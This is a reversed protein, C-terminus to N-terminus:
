NMKQFVFLHEHMILLFNSEKSKNIIFSNYYDYAMRAIVYADAINDNRIEEGYKKYIDLMITAKGKSKGDGQIYKKVQLPAPEIYHIGQKFLALQLIGSLQGLQFIRGVERFAGGELGAFEIKHNNLIELFQLEIHFLREVGITSTSFVQNFLIKYNNDIICIGTGTLSQDIGLFM